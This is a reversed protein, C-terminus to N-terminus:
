NLENVEPKRGFAGRLCNMASQVKEVIAGASLGAHPPLAVRRLLGRLRARPLQFIGESLHCNAIAGVRATGTYIGQARM